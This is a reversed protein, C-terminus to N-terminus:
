LGAFHDFGGSQPIYEDGNGLLCRLGASSTIEGICTYRIGSLCQQLKDRDHADITFCLEYDDGYAIALDIWSNDSNMKDRCSIFAPSLPVRDIYLTAGVRSAALIHGLDAALGDSVDIASCAVGLLNLGEKVRPIPRDLRSSLYKIDQGEVPFKRQNILMACGADGLEGTVYILEGPRATDRRLYHGESVFGHVQVTIALPGRCTDGGVLQVNFRDALDFFGRSFARLWDHNVEPITLSLMAWAPEAGMAAMDSLNVALAKYGISEPDSEHAFHIGAVLTDMSVVLERQSPVRLVAGDDGIGAVVDARAISGGAFYRGILDFESDSM